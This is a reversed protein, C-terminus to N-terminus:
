GAHGCRDLMDGLAKHDVPTVPLEYKRAVAVYRTAYMCWAGRNPPKWGERDGKSQNTPGDVALLNEPDNAFAERREPTWRNAGLTWAMSLSVVHDIQVAAPDSSDFTVKRGSYPDDLTGGIVNCGKGAVVVELDRALVHDRTDCGKAYAWGDGFADRRYTGDRLREAVGLEAHWRNADAANQTGPVTTTASITPAPSTRTDFEFGDVGTVAIAAGIACAALTAAAAYLSKGRRRTM